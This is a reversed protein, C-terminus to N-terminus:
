RKLFGEGATQGFLSPKTDCRLRFDNFGPFEQIYLTTCLDAAQSAMHLIKAPGAAPAQCEKELPHATKTPRANPVTRERVSVPKLQRNVRRASEKHPSDRLIQHEM